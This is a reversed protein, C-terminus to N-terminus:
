LGQIKLYEDKSTWDRVKVHLDLRVKIGFFKELDKRANIGIQKIMSAQKGIVIGKQSERSVIVSAVIDMRDESDTIQETEVLIDYPVEKDLLAFAQERIFESILFNEPQTTVEEKDYM